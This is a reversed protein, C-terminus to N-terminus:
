RALDIHKDIRNLNDLNDLIDNLLNDVILHTLNNDLNIPIITKANTANTANTVVDNFANVATDNKIKPRRTRIVVFGDEDVDPENNKIVVNSNYVIENLMMKKNIVKNKLYGKIHDSCTATYTLVDNMVNVIHYAGSILYYETYCLYPNKRDSM